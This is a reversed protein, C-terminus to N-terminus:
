ESVVGTVLVKVKFNGSEPYPTAFDRVFEIDKKTTEYLEMDFRRMLTALVIFLEAYALNLGQCIRSGRSFIVLYRDLREGSAAARIWREPDFAHPDPFIDPNMLIFNNIQSVPTGPPITYDKYVLTETPAIRPSRSSFGTSLRLTENIVASLYPLKELQNWTPRVDLTPIAETLEGRLKNRVDERSLLHYTALSLSRATTETGATALGFGENMLRDPTRLHQPMKPGALTSLITNQKASSPDQVADLSLRYMHNKQGALASAAPSLWRLVGMPLANLLNRLFPFFYMVHCVTLVGNISDRVHENFGEQDLNRPDYGFVYSHIVDATLGAYGADINVVKHSRYARQLQCCIKDLREYISNEMNSIARKSFFKELPARRERHAEPSVSSFASGDNGFQALWSADRERKRTGRPFTEEYYDPDKIHIERPNIRIIPGYVKHLREIEWIYMGRKIVNYYFEYGYTIAALKPGPIKRLPHFYLRYISRLFIYALLGLGLTAFHAM